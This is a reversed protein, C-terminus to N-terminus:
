QLHDSASQERDGTLQDLCQRTCHETLESDAGALLRITPNQSLPASKKTTLM